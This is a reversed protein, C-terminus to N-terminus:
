QTDLNEQHILEDNTLINKTVTGQAVGGVVTAGTPVRGLATQVVSNPM